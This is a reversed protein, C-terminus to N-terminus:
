SSSKTPHTAGQCRKAGRKLLIESFGRELFVKFFPALLHWPALGVEKGEKRMLCLESKVEKHPSFISEKKKVRQKVGCDLVGSFSPNTTVCRKRIPHHVEVDDSIKKKIEADETKSSEKNKKRISRDLFKHIMSVILYSPKKVQKWLNTEHNFAYWEECHVLEKKLEPAIGIALAM